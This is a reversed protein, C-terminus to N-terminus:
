QKTVARILPLLVEVDQKSGLQIRLLRSMGGLQARDVWARLAEPVSPDVKINAVSKEPIFLFVELKDGFFVRVRPTEEVNYSPAESEKLPEYEITEEVKPDAKLEDRLYAFAEQCAPSGKSSLEEISM